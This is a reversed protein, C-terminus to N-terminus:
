KTKLEEKEIEKLFRLLVPDDIVEDAHEWWPRTPFKKDKKWCEFAELLNEARDLQRIFRGEKSSGTEYDQWLEMIEKKLKAPLKKTLKELAQREKKIKEAYRKRKVGSSARPPWERFFEDRKKKSKPLLGDYPTIDGAYIKCIDHILAMKLAKEINVKRESGFVWVMMTTRFTHDLANPPKKVGYFTIGKRVVDKLTNVEMLFELISKM